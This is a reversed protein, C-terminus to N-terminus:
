KVQLQVMAFAPDVVGDGNIGVIRLLVDAKAGAALNVWAGTRMGTASLNVLPGTSGDLYLWNSGNDTSYQGRLEANTSGAVSLQAVLRAQTAGSLDTKARAFGATLSSPYEGLAAPMNTWVHATDKMAQNIVPVPAPGAGPPPEPQWKGTATRYRAVDGDVPPVTANVDPHVTSWWNHSARLTATLQRRDLVETVNATSNPVQETIALRADPVITFPVGAVDATVTFTASADGALATTAATVPTVAPDVSANIAAVLGLAIEGETASADSTYTLDIGNIRITYLTSNVVSTIDVLARQAIDADAKAEFLRISGAPVAPEPDKMAWVEGIDFNFAGKDVAQKLGVSIIAETGTTPTYVLDVTTWTDAALVPINLTHVPSAVLATNDLLIQLDGSALAISSRVRLRIKGYPTLDALPIAESVSDGASAGAAIAFRVANGTGAEGAIISQVFDVDTKEAWVDEGDDLLLGNDVNSYAGASSLDVLTRKRAPVVRNEAAKSVRRSGAYAVGLPIALTLSAPSPVPPLLGNVVYDSVLDAATLKAADDSIPSWVPVSPTGTNKVSEGTDPRLWILAVPPSVPPSSANAVYYVYGGHVAYNTAVHSDHERLTDEVAEFWVDDAVPAGVPPTTGEPVNSWDRDSFPFPM